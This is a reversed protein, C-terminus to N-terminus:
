FSRVAVTMGPVGPHDDAFRRVRVGMRTLLDLAGSRNDYEEAYVVTQIASQVVLKACGLCPLCTVYLTGNMARDRGAELLANAEAHICECAELARGQSVNPDNCRACGGANCNAAQSPTGNYGTAIVRNGRAVIAGVRRKMCNSRTSALFTLRMFYTDWSPRVLEECLFGASAIKKQLLSTDGDAMVHVDAVAMCVRVGDVGSAGSHGGASTRFCLQDERTIMDDMSFNAGTKARMRAVRVGLPADVAVLAFFPRKRLTRVEELRSIGLVVFNERWRSTVFDVIQDADTFSLSSPADSPRAAPLPENPAPAHPASRPESSGNVCATDQLGNFVAHPRQSALPRSSPAAAVLGNEPCQLPAEAFFLSEKEERPSDADSRASPRVTPSEAVRGERKARCAPDSAGSRSDAREAAEADARKARASPSPFRPDSVSRLRDRSSRLSRSAFAPCCAPAAGSLHLLTFNYQEQLVRAVSKKGSQLPGVLGLVVM